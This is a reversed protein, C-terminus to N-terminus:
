TFSKAFGDLFDALEKETDAALERKGRISELIAPKRQRLEGLMSVEFRTV